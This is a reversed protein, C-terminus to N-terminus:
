AVWRSERRGVRGVGGGVWGRSYGGELRHMLGGWRDAQAGAAGTWRTEGAGELSLGCVGAVRKADM